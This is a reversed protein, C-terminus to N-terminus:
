NSSLPGFTSSYGSTEYIEGSSGSGRGIGFTGSLDNRRRNHNAASERTQLPTWIARSRQEATIVTEEEATTTNQQPINEEMRASSEQAKADTEANTLSPAVATQANATERTSSSLQELQEQPAEIQAQATSATQTAATSEKQLIQAAARESVQQNAAAPSETQEAINQTIDAPREDEANQATIIAANSPVPQPISETNRKLPTNPVEESAEPSEAIQRSQSAPNLIGQASIVEPTKAFGHDQTTETTQSISPQAIAAMMTSNAAIVPTSLAIIAPAALNVLAQSLTRQTSGRAPATFAAERAINKERLDGSRESSMGMMAGTNANVSYQPEQIQVAENKTAERSAILSRFTPVSGDGSMRPSTEAGKITGPLPTVAPNQANSPSKASDHKTVASHIANAANIGGSIVGGVTAGIAFDDVAQAATYPEGTLISQAVGSINEEFGEGLTDAAFGAAKGALGGADALKGAARNFVAGGIAEAGWEAAGAIAARGANGSGELLETSFANAAGMGHSLANGAFIASASGGGTIAAAMTAPLAEGLADAAKAAFKAGASQPASVKSNTFDEVAKNFLSTATTIPKADPTKAATGDPNAPMFHKGGATDIHLFDKANKPLAELAMGPAAMTKIIGQAVGGPTRKAQEAINIARDAPSLLQRGGFARGASAANGTQRKLDNEPQGPKVPEPNQAQQRRMFDVSSRQSYDM